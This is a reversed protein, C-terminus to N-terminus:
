RGLENGDSLAEPHESGLAKVYYGEGWCTIIPLRIFLATIILATIILALSISSHNFIKIQIIPCQFREILRIDLYVYDVIKV